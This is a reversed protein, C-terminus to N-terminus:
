EDENFWENLKEHTDLLQVPMNQALQRLKIAQKEEESLKIEMPFEGRSVVQKYLITIATTANLGLEELIQEANEKLEKDIGVQIRGKEKTKM